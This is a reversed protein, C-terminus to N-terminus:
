SKQDVIKVLATTIAGVKFGAEELIKAIFFVTSSKGNTGTVGIVIMKESQRGYYYNALVTLSKHYYALLWPHIFKKILEKM